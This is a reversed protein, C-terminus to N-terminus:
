CVCHKWEVNFISILKLIFLFVHLDSISDKFLFLINSTADIDVDKRGGRLKEQETDMDRNKISVQYLQEEKGRVYVDIPRWRHMLLYVQM